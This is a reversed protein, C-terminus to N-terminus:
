ATITSSYGALKALADGSLRYKTWEDMPAAGLKKYFEISPLNWDLVGWEVRGCGRAVAIQAVATLLAIGIGRGRLHPRVFLDELYIGSQALFTSYVPFFIAFGANEFGQYALLVEAAPKSGFLSERLREESAIVMESLKEYDALGRILELIVPVDAEIAPVIRIESLDMATWSLRRLLGLRAPNFETRGFMQLRRM